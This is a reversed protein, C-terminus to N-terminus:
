AGIKPVLLLVRAAEPGDPDTRYTWEWRLGDGSVAQCCCVGGLKAADNGFDAAQRMAAVGAGEGTFERDVGFGTHRDVFTVLYAM